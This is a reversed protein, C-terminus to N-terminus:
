TSGPCHSSSMRYVDGDQLTVIKELDCITEFDGIDYLYGQWWDTNFWVLYLVGRNQLDAQFRLLDDTPVDSEYAFKEPSPNYVRGTLAYVASPENTYITGSLDTSKIYSIVDSEIWYATHFGGAGQEVDTKVNKYTTLIPYMLWIALSATVIAQPLTNGAPVSNKYLLRDVFYFLSLMLPVFIPSMYRDDIQSLATTSTTYIMFITYIGTFLVFPVIPMFNLVAIHIRLVLSVIFLFLIM